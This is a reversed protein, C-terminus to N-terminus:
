LVIVALQAEAESGLSVGGVNTERAFGRTGATGCRARPRLLGHPVLGGGSRSAGARRAPVLGRAHASPSAIEVNNADVWDGVSTDTKTTLHPSLQRV